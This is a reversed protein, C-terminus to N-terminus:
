PSSEVGKSKIPRPGRARPSCISPVRWPSSCRGCRLL